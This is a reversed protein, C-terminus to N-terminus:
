NPLVNEEFNNGGVVNGPVYYSCTYLPGNSCKTVGCGLQSTSKWVVQTFHGTGSSYGPNSYDYDKNEDYWATVADTWSSYGMAM